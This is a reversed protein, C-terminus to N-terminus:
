AAPNEMGRAIGVRSLAATRKTSVSRDRFRDFFDQSARGRLESEGETQLTHQISLGVVQMSM